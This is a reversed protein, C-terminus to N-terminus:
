STPSHDWNYTTISDRGLLPWEQPPQTGATTILAKMAQAVMDARGTAVLLIM